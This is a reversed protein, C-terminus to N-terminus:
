RSMNMCNSDSDSDNQPATRNKEAPRNEGAFFEKSYESVPGFRRSLNFQGQMPSGFSKLTNGLRNLGMQLFNTLRM